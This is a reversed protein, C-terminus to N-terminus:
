RNLSYNEYITKINIIPLLLLFVFMLILEITDINFFVKIKPAIPKFDKLM